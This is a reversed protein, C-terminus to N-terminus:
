LLDLELGVHEEAPKMTGQLDSNHPKQQHVDGFNITQPLILNNNTDLDDWVPSGPGWGVPIANLWAEFDSLTAGWNEVNGQVGDIAIVESSGTEEEFNGCESPPQQPQKLQLNEPSAAKNKDLFLEPFNLKANEGRLKYAERDYAMAADEATDFTGLWLRTRKRPLRIEAVWKGWHRQRVGRYLKTTSYPHQLLPSFLPVRNSQGSKNLMTTRGRPSLNLTENCHQLQHQFPGLERSFYQPHQATFSIMQQQNQHLPRFLPTNNSILQHSCETPQQTGDLAFPFVVMSSPSTSSSTPSFAIHTPANYPVSPPLLTQHSSSVSSQFCLQNEPIKIKKRFSTNLDKGNDRQWNM